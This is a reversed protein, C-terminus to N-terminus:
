AVMRGDQSTGAKVDQRVNKQNLRQAQKASFSCGQQRLLVSIKEEWKEWGEELVNGSLLEDVLYQIKEKESQKPLAPQHSENGSASKDRQSTEPSTEPITTENQMSRTADQSMATAYQSLGIVQISKLKSVKGYNISIWRTRDYAAKNFNNCRILKKKQLNAITRNITDKSWFPFYEDKLYRISQFTWPRGKKDETTSISKLFDVQLLMISENLGIEKALTPMIRLVTQDNLVFLRPIEKKPKKQKM